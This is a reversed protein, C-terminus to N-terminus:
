VLRQAHFLPWALRLFPQRAFPRVFPVSRVLRSSPFLFTSSLSFRGSLFPPSEGTDCMGGSEQLGPWSTNRNEAKRSVNALGTVRERECTCEKRAGRRPRGASCVNDEHPACHVVTLGPGRYTISSRCATAM